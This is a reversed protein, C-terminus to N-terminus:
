SSDDTAQRRAPAVEVNNKKSQPPKVERDGRKKGIVPAWPRRSSLHTPQIRRGGRRPDHLHHRRASANRVEVVTRCRSIRHLGQIALPRARPGKRAPDKAGDPRRDQKGATNQIRRLAGHERADAIAQIRRFGRAVITEIGGSRDYRCAFSCSSKRSGTPPLSRRFRRSFRIFRALLSKKTM